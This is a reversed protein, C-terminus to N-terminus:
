RWRAVGHFLTSWYSSSFAFCWLDAVYDGAAEAEELQMQTDAGDEAEAEELEQQMLDGLEVGWDVRIQACVCQFADTAHTLVLVM